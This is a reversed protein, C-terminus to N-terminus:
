DGNADAEEYTSQEQMLSQIGMMSRDIANSSNALLLNQHDGGGLTPSAVEDPTM